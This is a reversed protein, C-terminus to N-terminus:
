VGGDVGADPEVQEPQGTAVRRLIFDSWGGRWCRVEVKRAVVPLETDPPDGMRPPRRIERISVVRLNTSRCEACLEDM